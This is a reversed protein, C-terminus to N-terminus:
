VDPLICFYRHHGRMFIFYDLIYNIDTDTGWFEWGFNVIPYSLLLYLMSFCSFQSFLIEVWLFKFFVFWFDLIICHFSLDVENKTFSGKFQVKIDRLSCTCTMNLKLIKWQETYLCVCITLECIILVTMLCKILSSHNSGKATNYIRSSIKVYIRATIEVYIRSSIEVYSRSIIESIIYSVM